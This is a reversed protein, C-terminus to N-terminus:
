QSWKYESPRNAIDSKLGYKLIKNETDSLKKGILTNILNSPNYQQGDQIEIEVILCDPKKSQWETVMAMQKNIYFNVFYKIIQIKMGTTSNNLIGLCNSLGKNFNKRLAKRFNKKSKMM